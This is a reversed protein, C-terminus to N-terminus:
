KNGGLLDGIKALVTDLAANLLYQNAPVIPGDETGPDALDLEDINIYLLGAFTPDQFAIYPTSALIGDAQIEYTEGVFHAGDTYDVDETAACLLGASGDPKGDAMEGLCEWETVLTNNWAGQDTTWYPLLDRLAVPPNDDNYAQLDVYLPKLNVFQNVLTRIASPSIASGIAGLDVNFPALIGSGIAVTGLVGLMTLVDESMSIPDGGTTVHDRVTNINPLTKDDLIVVEQVEEEGEKYFRFLYEFKGGTKKDYYILDSTQDKDTAYEADCAAAMAAIDEAMVAIAGIAENAHDEAGERWALFEESDNLLYALINFIVGVDLAPWYDAQYKSIVSGLDARISHAQLYRTLLAMARTSADIILVDTADFDGKIYSIEKTALYFPLHDFHISFETNTKLPEYMEAAATFHDAIETFMEDFVGNAWDGLDEPDIDEELTINHKALKARLEPPPPMMDGASALTAVVMGIIEFGIQGESMGMGFRVQPNDPDVAYAEAFKENALYAEGNELWFIGEEILASVDVEEGDSDGDAEGDGDPTEDGDPTDDGDPIDDGDPTDDGDSTGDGDTETETDGDTIDSNGGDDCAVMLSLLIFLVAIIITQKKM